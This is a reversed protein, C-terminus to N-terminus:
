LPINGHKKPPLSARKGRLARLAKAGGTRDVHIMGAHSTYAGFVPIRALEQKMVYTPDPLIPILALTEWASQHKSAILSGEPPVNELGRVEYGTGAIARLLWLMGRAWLRVVGMARKKPLFFYFPLTVLTLGTTWAYFALNFALSRLRAM